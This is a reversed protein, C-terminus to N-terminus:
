KTACRKSPDINPDNIVSTLGDRLAKLNDRNKTEDNLKKSLRGYGLNDEDYKKEVWKYYRSDCVPFNFHPELKTHEFEGESGDRQGGDRGYENREREEPEEEQKKDCNFVKKWEQLVLNLGFRNGQHGISKNIKNSISIAVIVAEIIPDKTQIVADLKKGYDEILLMVGQGPALAPSNLCKICNLLHDYKKKSLDIQMCFDRVMCYLLNIARKTLWQNRSVRSTHHLLVELQHCIKSSCDCIKDMENKWQKWMDKQTGLHTRRETLWTVLRDANNYRTDYDKFDKFWEDYCCDGSGKNNEPPKKEKECCEKVKPECTLHEKMDYELLLM